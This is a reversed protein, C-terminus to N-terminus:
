LVFWLGLKAKAYNEISYSKRKTQYDNKKNTNVFMFKMSLFSYCIKILKLTWQTLM